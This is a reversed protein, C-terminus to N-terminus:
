RLASPPKPWPRSGSLRHGSLWGSSTANASSVSAAAPARSGSSAARAQWKRSATASGLPATGITSGDIAAYGSASCQPSPTKGAPNAAAAEDGAAAVLEADLMRPQRARGLKAEALELPLRGVVRVREALPEGEELVYGVAFARLREPGTDGLRNPARPVEARIRGALLVPQRREVERRLGVSAQARREVVVHDCGM